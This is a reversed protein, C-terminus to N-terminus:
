TTKPSYVDCIMAVMRELEPELLDQHCALQLIHHSWLRGHDDEIVTVDPWLRDWRSVPLGMERLKLYGPDPNAVWLPFVYPACNDPLQPILPRAYECNAFAQTLFQYKKRREVVIRQRPVWQAVWRSALTLSQHSPGLNVYQNDNHDDDEACGASSSSDSSPQSRTQFRRVVNLLSEFLFRIGNLRGHNIGAHFIDFGAKIQDRFTPSSLRPLTLQQTNNVLCGGEPVPLFKTLSAIALDGWQGVARGDKAGFLSHACDEIFRINHQDCWTRVSSLAQPIGFFHAALIVRLNKFHQADVWALDPSGDHRLPYFVPEAGRQVIPAIMTPCHYTPVLVQDGPGIDLMELALLISARGSNTFQMGPLTLLCPTEAHKAGSVTTWDFVPLRPIPYPM